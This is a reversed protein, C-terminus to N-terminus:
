SPKVARVWGELSKLAFRRAEEQPIESFQKQEDSSLTHDYMLAAASRRGFDASVEDCWNKLTNTTIDGSGRKSRMSMSDLKKAVKELADARKLGADMLRKVTAVAFGKLVM